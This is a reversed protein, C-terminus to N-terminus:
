APLAVEVSLGTGTNSFALTAGLQAALSRALRLGLSDTHAPDFGDPLGVGDDVIQVVIKGNRRWCAVLITGAVSTPHAYKVANTVLESVMLGLPLARETAIRCGAAGEFALQGGGAISLSSVVAESIERLYNSLDIDTGSDLHALLRHLRGVTDVRHGIEELLTCVEAREMAGTEAAIDRAHIQILSAVMALSNAIRHNAEAAADRPPSVPHPEPAFAPSSTSPM